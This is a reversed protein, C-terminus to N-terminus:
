DPVSVPDAHFAGPVVVECVVSARKPLVEVLVARNVLDGSLSALSAFILVDAIGNQFGTRCYNM